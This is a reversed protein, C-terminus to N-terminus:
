AAPCLQNTTECSPVVALRWMTIFRIPRKVHVNVFRTSPVPGVYTCLTASYSLAFSNPLSLCTDPALQAQLAYRQVDLKFGTLQLDMKLMFFSCPSSRTM